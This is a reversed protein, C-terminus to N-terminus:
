PLIEIRALQRDEGNVRFTMRVRAQAQLQEFGVNTGSRQVVVATSVHMPLQQAGVALVLDRTVADVSHLTGDLESEAASTSRAMTRVKEVVQATLEGLQAGAARVDAAARDTVQVNVENRGAAHSTTISFWGRFWGVGLVLLALLFILGLFRM